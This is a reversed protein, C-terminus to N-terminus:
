VPLRLGRAEGELRRMVVKCEVRVPLPPHQPAGLWVADVGHPDSAPALLVVSCEVVLLAHAHTQLPRGEKVTHANPITAGPWAALPEQLCVPLRLGRTEGELRRMMGRGRQQHLLQPEVVTDTIFQRGGVVLLGVTENEERRVKSSLATQVAQGLPRLRPSCLRAANGGDGGGVRGAGKVFGRGVAKVAGWSGLM